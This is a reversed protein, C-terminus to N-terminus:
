KIMKFQIKVTISQGKQDSRPMQVYNESWSFKGIGLLRYYAHATKSILNYISITKIMTQKSVDQRIFTLFKNPVKQGEGLQYISKCLEFIYIQCNNITSFRSFDAGMNKMTLKIVDKFLVPKTPKLTLADDELSDDHLPLTEIWTINPDKETRFCKKQSLDPSILEVHLYLHYIDDYQYINKVKEIEGGSVLNLIIQLVKRVPRRHIQLQNVSWNGYKKVIQETAPCKNNLVLNKINDFLGLGKDVIDTVCRDEKEDLIMDGVPNPNSVAYTENQQGPLGFSIDEITANKMEPRQYILSDSIFQGPINRAGPVAYRENLTNQCTIKSFEIVRNSTYDRSTFPHYARGFQNLNLILDGNSSEVIANEGRRFCDKRDFFYKDHDTYLICDRVLGKKCRQYFSNTHMLLYTAGSMGETKAKL